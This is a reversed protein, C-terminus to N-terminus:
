GRTRPPASPRRARGITRGEDDLLLPFEPGGVLDRIDAPEGNAAAIREAIAAEIDARVRRVGSRRHRLASIRPLAAALEVDFDAARAGLWEPWSGSGTARDARWIGAAGDDRLRLPVGSREAAVFDVLGIPDGREDYRVLADLTAIVEGRSDWAILCGIM